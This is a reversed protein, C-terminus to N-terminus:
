LVTWRGDERPWSREPNRAAVRAECRSCLELILLDDEESLIKELEFRLQELTRRTGRVRFVSYQIREGFGRIVRYAFRWRKPDRIDYMVLYAYRAESM